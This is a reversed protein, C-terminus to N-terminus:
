CNRDSLEAYRLEHIIKLAGFEGYKRGIRDKSTVKLSIRFWEPM